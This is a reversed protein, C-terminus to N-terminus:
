FLGKKLLISEKGVFKGNIYIHVFYMKKKLKDKKLDIISSVSVKDGQYNAKTSYSYTLNFKKYSVFEGKGDIVIGDKDKIVYYIDVEGTENVDNPLIEFSVKFANTSRSKNTAKYSGKKSKKLSSIKITEVEMRAFYDLNKQLTTNRETLQKNDEEKVKITNEAEGLKETTEEVTTNLDAIIFNLKQIKSNLLGIERKYRYSQSKSISKQKKLDALYGEIRAKAETLETEMVSNSAELSDYKEVLLTLENEISKKEIELKTIEKTTEANNYYMYGACSLLVIVLLVIITKYKSMEKNPTELEKM